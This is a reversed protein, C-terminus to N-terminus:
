LACQFGICQIYANKQRVTITRHVFKIYFVNTREQLVQNM